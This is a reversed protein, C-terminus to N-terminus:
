LLVNEGIMRRNLVCVCASREMSHYEERPGREGMCWFLTCGLGPWRVCSCYKQNLFYVVSVCLMFM